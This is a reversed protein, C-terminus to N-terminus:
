STPAGGEPPPRREEALVPRDPRHAEPRDPLHAEFREMMKGARRNADEDILRNILQQVEDSHPIDRLIEDPSDGASEITLDGSKIIRDVLGKRFSVDTIKSLTIDKGVKAIVGRRVMVRHTTIVYHTTRWRLYPAIVLWVLIVLALALGVWQVTNGTTDDPTQWALVAGGALLVVGIVTPALVTLWHPHISRVVRENSALVNEPFGM